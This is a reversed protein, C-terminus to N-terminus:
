PNERRINLNDLVDLLGPFMADFTSDSPKDTDTSVPGGRPILGAAHRAADTASSGSRVLRAAEVYATAELRIYEVDEETDDDPNEYDWGAIIHTLRAVAESEEATTDAEVADLTPSPATELIARLDDHLTGGLGDEIWVWWTVGDSDPADLLAKVMGIVGSAAKERGRSAQLDAETETLTATLSELATAARDLADIMWSRDEMNGARIEAILETNSTESM